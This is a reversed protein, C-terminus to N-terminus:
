DYIIVNYSELKELTTEDLLDIVEGIPYVRGCGSCRIRVSRCVRLIDLAGGCHTCQMM